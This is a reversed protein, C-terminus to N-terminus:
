SCWYGTNLTRISISSCGGSGPNGSSDCQGCIFYRSGESYIARCPGSPWYTWCGQFVRAASVTSLTNSTTLFVSDAVMTQVIPAKCGPVGVGFDSLSVPGSTASVSAVFFVVLFVATLFMSRRNMIQEEQNIKFEPPRYKRFM